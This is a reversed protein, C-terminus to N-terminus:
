RQLLLCVHEVPRNVLDDKKGTQHLMRSKLEEKLEAVRMGEYVKRRDRIEVDGREVDV